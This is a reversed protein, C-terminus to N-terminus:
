NKSTLSRNKWIVSSYILVVVILCAGSFVLSLNLSYASSIWGSILMAAFYMLSSFVSQFSLITARVRSTIEYNMITEKIPNVIGLAFEFILLCIFAAYFSDITAMIIIIIGTVLSSFLLNRKLYTTFRKSVLNGGILAIQMLTWTFGIITYNSDPYGNLLPSWSVFVNSISFTFLGSYLIITRVNRDHLCYKFTEDIVNRIKVFGARFDDAFKGKKLRAQQKEIFVVVTLIFVLAAMLSLVFSIRIGIDAVAGGIIGGVLTVASQVRNKDVCVRDIKEKPFDEHDFIWAELAGSLMASSVGSLVQGIILFYYSRAIIFIINAAALCTGSIVLVIKNGWIDAVAGSPIESVFVAIVAVAIIFNVQFPNYGLSYLFLVFIAGTFGTCIYSISNLVHFLSIRKSISM